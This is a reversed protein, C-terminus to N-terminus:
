QKPLQVLGVVGNDVGDLEQDYGGTSAAEAYVYRTNSPLGSLTVNVKKKKIKGNVPAPLTRLTVSHIVTPIGALIQTPSAYFTLTPTTSAINGLNSVELKMKVDLQGTSKNIKGKPQKPMAVHLDTVNVTAGAAAANGSLNITYSNESDPDNSVIVISGTKIGASTPHFAVDFYSLSGPPVLGNPFNVAEFQTPNTATVSSITLTTVPDTNWVYFTHTSSEGVHVSYWFNTDFTSPSEGDQIDFNAPGTVEIDQARCAGAAGLVLMGAMMMVRRIGAM